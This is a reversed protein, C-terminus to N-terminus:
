LFLLLLLFVQSDTNPSSSTRLCNATYCYKDLLNAGNLSGRLSPPPPEKRQCSVCSLRSGWSCHDKIQYQQWQKDRSMVMFTAGNVTTENVDSNFLLIVQIVNFLNFILYLGGRTLNERTHESDTAWGSTHERENERTIHTKKEKEKKNQLPIPRLAPQHNSPSLGVKVPPLWDRIMWRGSALPQKRDQVWTRGTGLGASSQVRSYPANWM